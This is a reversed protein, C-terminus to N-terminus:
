FSGRVVVGGGGSMAVPAVADVGAEPAERKDFDTFFFIVGTTVVGAATLGLLVRDFTQLSAASDREDLWEGRDMDGEELDKFRSHVVLDTIGWSLLLAGTVAAGAWFVPPSLGRRGDAADDAGQAGGPDAAGDGEETGGTGGTEAEEPGAEAVAAEPVPRQLAVAVTGRLWELVVFFGATKEGKVPERRAQLLSISYSTQESDVVRVLIAEDAGTAEAVKLLCAQDECTAGAAAEEVAKSVAEGRIVEYGADRAGEAVKDEVKGAARTVDAAADSSVYSVPLVAVRGAACVEPSLIVVFVRAVFTRSM